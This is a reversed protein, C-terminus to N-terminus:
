FQGFTKLLCLACSSNKDLFVHKGKNEQSTFNPFDKLISM